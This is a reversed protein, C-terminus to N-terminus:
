LSYAQTIIELSSLSEDMYIAQQEELSVRKIVGGSGTVVRKPIVAAGNEDQFLGDPNILCTCNEVGEVGEVVEIVQSRFLSEGLKVQKLAFADLLTLRLNEAVIEPDYEEEKIRIIINLDLILSEYRAVTVTVGPLAHQSLTNELTAQLKGLAGGGAPVVVVNVKDKRMMGPQLRIARAQWVSSNSTALHTFDSLSVARELALLSAPANRRMSSVDEMANGGSSEIPQLVEDILHHPKVEKKFSFPDLNGSLGVGVRHKIRVNNSGTPLRRGNRGDGFGINLTADENMRVVYHSDEPDSDNLVAVQKWTRNDVTVDLAARVGSSFTSDAAFSVEEIAFDFRQQSKAADGSGLIKESQSEGHGSQIVNGYITTEYRSYSELTNPIAPEVKIRKAEADIAKLTVGMADDKGVVILKRGVTLLDPIAELELPIHSHSDSIFEAATEFALEANVDYDLPRLDLKFNGFLMEVDDDVAGSLTLTFSKEGESLELISAAVHGGSSKAIVWVGGSLGGPAGDLTIDEPASAQVTAIADAAPVYYAKSYESGSLYEYAGEGSESETEIDGSSVKVLSKDWLAGDIRGDDSKEPLILRKEGTNGSSSEPADIYTALFIEKEEAPAARSFRVRDGEVAEIRAVRWSYRYRRRGSKKKTVVRVKWTVVANEVLGHDSNLIAVNSGTLRPSQKYAPKLLLRVQHRKSSSPFGSPKSEGQLELESDTVSTVKVYTSVENGSAKKILLVGLTGAAVGEVSESLPFTASYSGRGGSYSFLLQSRDWDKPRFQNMDEAIGLDDLTEFIVPKSGDEPKNKFAFGAEVTGSKDEKALLAIPTEASAPPAPHYDLMEVLRRVNDWQTATGIYSENAYANIHGTLVHSARAYSRLIEWGYGRREDRYQALWRNRRERPTETSEAQIASDLATWKNNGEADTFAEAMAQRLAELYTVANGDVYQFRSLGARNWRTLDKKKHASSM